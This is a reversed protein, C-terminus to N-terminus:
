SSHSSAAVYGDVSIGTAQATQAIGLRTVSPPTWALRLPEQECALNKGADSRGTERSYTM